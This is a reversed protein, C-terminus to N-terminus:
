NLFLDQFLLRYTNESQGTYLISRLGCSNFKPWPLYIQGDFVETWQWFNVGLILHIREVNLLITNGGGVSKM